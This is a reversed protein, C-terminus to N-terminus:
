NNKIELVESQRDDVLKARLYHIRDGNARWKAEYETIIHDEIDDVGLDYSIDLLEFGNREFYKISDDFFGRQDTKFVIESGVKLIKKYVNLLQPHTLRRKHQSRKPWPNSFNLYIKSVENKEFFSSLLEAKNRIGLINNLGSDVFSKATTVLVREDMEMAVYNIDPNREAKTLIFKGFGAGIELHVPNNNNFKENWKGKLETPTFFILENEELEPIAHPKFRMRM